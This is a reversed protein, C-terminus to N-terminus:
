DTTEVKLGAERWQPFGNRHWHVRTYGAKLAARSAKYSKWCEPGNCGIVLLANRDAPLKGIDFKDKADDFDADKASAEIYPVWRAGQVHGAKYESENRSDVYVAGEKMLQAAAGADVMKTGPLERPSFYGLTSIYDFAKAEVPILQGLAATQATAAYAAALSSQLASVDTAASTGKKVAVSLGPAPKSQMVAKVPEGSEVWRDFLTKEVAVVDCRRVQLCILLSEQYRVEYSSAFHRKLSSNAANVEGRLLYTVVSDQPPLGLKKGSAAALSDIPSSKLAVLVTQVPRDLGAVPVYGFRMASGVVHSPAVLVDHHRSPVGALDTTADTSLRIALEGDKSRKLAQDVVSRLTEYTSFRSREGQDGPNILVSTAAQLPLALVWLALVLAGSAASRPLTQM